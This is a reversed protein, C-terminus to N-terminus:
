LMVTKKGNEYYCRILEFHDMLCKTAAEGLSDNCTIMVSPRQARYCKSLPVYTKLFNDL